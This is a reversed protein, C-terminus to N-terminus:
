GHVHVIIQYAVLSTGRTRASIRSGAPISFPFSFDGQPATGVGVSQSSAVMDNIFNVENGLLGIALDFEEFRAQNFSPSSRVQVLMWTGFKDTLPILEEYDGEVDQGSGNTITVWDSAQSETPENPQSLEPPGQFLINIGRVEEQLEWDVEWERVM